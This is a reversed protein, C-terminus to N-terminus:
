PRKLGESLHTFFREALSLEDAALLIVAAKFVSSNRFAAQRWDPFSEQGTLRPDPDFGALEAALLGYFSTQYQAGLEFARQADQRQGLAQLARGMWYGARGKSVPTVVAADFRRFHGLAIEPDKLYRLALFGALWELDAFDTGESLHHFAALRYAKKSSGERILRRVLDRRARAWAEPRRLTEASTSRELILELASERLGKRMRWAFRAHILGAENKLAEPVDEILTDVNGAGENLALRALALKAQDESVRPILRRATQRWDKWLALDLRQATLPALVRGFEEVYETHEDATMAYSLWATRIAAQAADEQGTARLARAYILTGGATQPPIQEFFDLVDQTGALAFVKESQRRLYPLGPWDANRTLFDRVDEPRGLGARLRHWEIVDRAAPGDRTALNQAASWDGARLAIMAQGLPRLTRDLQAVTIGKAAAADERSFPRQLQPLSVEAPQGATEGRALPRLPADQAM